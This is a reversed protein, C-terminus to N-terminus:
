VRDVFVTFISCVKIKNVYSIAHNFEVPGRTKQDGNVMAQQAGPSAGNMLHDQLPTIGDGPSSMLGRGPLVGASAQSAANQLHAVNRQEQQHIAASQAQQERYSEPSHPVHSTPGGQAPYGLQVGNVGNRGEPSFGSDQAGATAQQHPPWNMRGQADFLARENLNPINGNIGLPRPSGLSRAAPMSSVTTGMPTTVRIANPDDGTGCEIKYGPPLFTNFGQILGPNGAFLHSVREIVGPTDIAGSKFDKMIDLFRNYVDPHDAFQVKVQDLYSLADQQEPDTLPIAFSRVPGSVNLIPQQAQNMNGNQQPAGTPAFVNLASVQAMQPAQQLRSNPDSQLIPGTSFLAQAAGMSTPPPVSGGASNPNGLLGNPGHITRVSPPVAVPQHIQMARAHNEHAAQQERHQRERMDQEANRRALEELDRSERERDNEISPHPQLQHQGM